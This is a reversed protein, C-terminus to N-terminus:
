PTEEDDASVSITITKAEGWDLIEEIYILADAISEFQYQDTAESHVFIM